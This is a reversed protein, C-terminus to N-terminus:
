RVAEIALEALAAELAPVLDSSDDAIGIDTNIQFAVTVGHDAYHRLSSVYAPIWGGHGWVPGRPTDAYIAVGAGYLIGPAEPDVPVGDLLRDLYPGEMADGGFLLHGWRALDASTSAFGGGASEVAPNWLLRGEADATRAPLGFPNDADVYGVALGPLDPRDSPFTGDLDLPGLLRTRVAEHWAQGTVDAIVLGLLVYGTDSYAWAQGAEFLPERGAVFAMLREPDFDGEAATLRTWGQQFEPLHVHDPLGSTHHLLHDITITGANPLADFWPRDGLHVSLLDDRSLRAERELALVTAAVFSKGISAALMPTETTIARGAEVDALGIAASMVTGDPLAIAATAGPFGYREHFDDLMAALQGEQAAVPAALGGLALAFALLLGRRM